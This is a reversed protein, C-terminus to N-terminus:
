KKNPDKDVPTLTAKQKKRSQDLTLCQFGMTLTCVLLIM